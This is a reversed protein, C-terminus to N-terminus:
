ICLHSWLKYDQHRKGTPRQLCYIVEFDEPFITAEAIDDIEIVEGASRSGMPEPGSHQIILDAANNERAQNSLFPEDEVYSYKTVIFHPSKSDCRDAGSHIEQILAVYKM